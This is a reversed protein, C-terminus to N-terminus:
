LLASAENAMQLAENGPIVLVQVPSKQTTIVLEDTKNAKNDLKIKWAALSKCISERLYYAHEGAGGTFVIADPISELAAMYSAMTKAIQYAYVGFARQTGKSKPKAWLDRVDSSMESLGKLGSEHQLIEEVRERSLGKKQLFLPIAPDLSGSRTGMPPGELPTFGMSTDLCQGNKIAALSVGNGMHCTIVKASRKKLLKCAENYVYHHNSGHFGYRRIKHKKSLSLPLAYLYAKEPLTSHFATDFIAVHKAKPLKKRAQVIGEINAPNHLPALPSLKKLQRLNLANIVTAKTFRDGGHVVRHAVCKIKSLGGLDKKSEIENLAFEVAEKVTKVKAKKQTEGADGYIRYRPSRTGIGDIHGRFLPKFKVDFLTFRLSSSGANLTLLTM